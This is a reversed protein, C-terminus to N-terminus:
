IKRKACRKQRCHFYINM